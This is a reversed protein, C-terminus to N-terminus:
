RRWFRKAASFASVSTKVVKSLSLV